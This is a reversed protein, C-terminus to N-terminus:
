NAKQINEIDLSKVYDEFYNLAELYSLKKFYIVELPPQKYEVWKFSKFEPKEQNDFRIEDDNGYFYLLFFKQENGDMNYKEKLYHPFHYKIKYDMKKLIKLKKTGLEEYLERLVAEDESEDIEVGGQPFQWANDIWVHECMLVKKERNMIIASVIERYNEKMKGCEGILFYEKKDTLM